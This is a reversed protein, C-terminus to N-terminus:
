PQIGMRDPSPALMGNKQATLPWVDTLTGHGPHRTEVRWGREACVRSVLNRSVGVARALDKLTCDWDVARAAAWVRFAIAERAPDTIPRGKM